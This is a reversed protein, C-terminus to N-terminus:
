SGKATPAAVITKALDADPLVVTEGDEDVALSGGVHYGFHAPLPKTPQGNTGLTIDNPELWNIGSDASEVVLYATMPSKKPPANSGGTPYAAFEGTTADVIALYSTSSDLAGPDEPCRYVAPMRKALERNHPGDWPEDYSYEKHLEEEEKGLHPLILVRWSHLPRGQADRMIAPPYVSNDDAYSHLAVAIKHLQMACQERRIRAELTRYAIRGVLFLGALIGAVILLFIPLVPVRKRREVVAAAVAPEQNPLVVSVGCRRCVARGASGPLLQSDDAGCRPCSM